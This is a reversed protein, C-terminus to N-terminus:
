LRLNLSWLEPEFTLQLDIGIGFGWDVIPFRSM